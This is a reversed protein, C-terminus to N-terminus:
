PQWDREAVIIEVTKLRMTRQADYRYRVCVLRDGYLAPAAQHGEPLSSVSGWRHLPLSPLTELRRGQAPGDAPFVRRPATRTPPRTSTCLSAPHLAASRLRRGM